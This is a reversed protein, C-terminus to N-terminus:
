PSTTALWPSDTGRPLLVVVSRLWYAREVSFCWPSACRSAMIFAWLRWKQRFSSQAIDSASAPAKKQIATSRNAIITYEIGDLYPRGPRWYDPNRAVKISQNPIYEIFKFPGTGIPNTLSRSLTGRAEVVRGIWKLAATRAGPNDPLLEPM